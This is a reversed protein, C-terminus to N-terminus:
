ERGKEKGPPLSQLVIFANKPFDVQVLDGEDGIYAKVTRQPTTLEVHRGRFNTQWWSGAFKGAITATRREFGGGFPDYVFYEKTERRVKGDVIMPQFQLQLKEMAVSPYVTTVRRRGDEEIQVEIRDEAYTCNATKQGGDGARVEVQRLIKGTPAVYWVSQAESVKVDRPPPSQTLGQLRIVRCPQGFLTDDKVSWRVYGLPYEIWVPPALADGNPNGPREERHVVSMVTERYLLPGLVVERQGPLYVDRVDHPPAVALPLLVALM